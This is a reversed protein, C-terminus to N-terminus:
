GAARGRAPQFWSPEHNFQPVDVMFDEAVVYNQEDMLFLIPEPGAEACPPPVFTPVNMATLEELVPGQLQSPLSVARSAVPLSGPDLYPLLDRREVFPMERAVLRDTLECHNLTGTPTWAGGSMLGM